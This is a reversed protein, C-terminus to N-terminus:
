PLKHKDNAYEALQRTINEGKWALLVPNADEAAFGLIFDQAVPPLSLLAQQAKAFGSHAVAIAALLETLDCQKLLGDPTM